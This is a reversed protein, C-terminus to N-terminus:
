SRPSRGTAPRAARVPGCRCSRAAGAPSEHGAEKQASAQREDFIGQPDDGADAQELQAVVGVGQELLQDAAGRARVVVRDRDAGDGLRRGFADPGIGQQDADPSIKVVDALHELGMVEDLVLDTRGAPVGLERRRHARQDDDAVDLVADVQAPLVMQGLRDDVQDLLVM